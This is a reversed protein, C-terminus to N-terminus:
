RSSTNKTKKIQRLFSNRRSALRMDSKLCSRKLLAPGNLFFLRGFGRQYKPQYLHTISTPSKQKQNWKYTSMQHYLEVFGEVEIDVLLRAACHDSDRPLPAIAPITTPQTAAARIIRVARSKKQRERRRCAAVTVLYLSTGDLGSGFSSLGTGPWCPLWINRSSSFFKMALASSFAARWVESNGVSLCPYRACRLQM